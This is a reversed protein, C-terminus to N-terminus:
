DLAQIDFIKLAGKFHKKDIEKRVEGNPCICFEKIGLNKGRTRFGSNKCLGCLGDSTISKIWSEELISKSM